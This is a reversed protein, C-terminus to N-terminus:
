ETGGERAKARVFNEVEDFSVLTIGRDKNENKIRILRLWGRQEAAYFWSRSLGFFKDSEGSRPLRFYQPRVPIQEAGCSEAVAKIAIPM